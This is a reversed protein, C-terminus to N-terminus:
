DKPQVTRGIHQRKADISQVARRYRAEEVELDLWKIIRKVQTETDEILDDYQVTLKEKNPIRKLLQTKGEDLWRQHAALKESSKNPCRRQLSLISDEIPRDIHLVRLQDDCADILQNGFQCLQPYKGAAITGRRHAEGRKDNIFDKLRNFAKHRPMKIGDSEFAPFAKECLRSLTVAEFSEGWPGKIFQNGLHLGLHHLVGALATSGSSHLGIVAVFRDDHVNFAVDKAAKWFRDPPNRGSINSKGGQQGVLWEKPCYVRHNPDRRQHFRGLHHDIHNGNHWDNKCLHKYVETMTKGRLAFAHTRNVNWPIYVELDDVQKPANKGVHLHQGGLYIMGWDDPVQELFATVRKTFDECFMADDEMLLISKRGNNMAQEIIRLHTRFCGWAGGGQKWWDPRQCKKGDIAQVRNIPAFPWDKPVQNKFRKWRDKRRDLSVCYTRDFFNQLSM